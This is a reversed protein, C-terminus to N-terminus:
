TEIYVPNSLARRIPQDALNVGKLQWPLERGEILALFEAALRERSAEAAIEARIFRQAAPLAFEYQWDDADISTSGIEGTADIWVLRDGKAGEVAVHASGPNTVRSGM